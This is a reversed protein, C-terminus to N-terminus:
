RQAPSAWGQSCDSVTFPHLRSTLASCTALHSGNYFDCCFYQTGDPSEQKEFM